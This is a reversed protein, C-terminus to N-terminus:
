FSVRLLVQIQRATESLPQLLPFANNLERRGFLAVGFQPSGYFASPNNLNAHNLLNYADARITFNLRETAARPHFTRSISADGSVLGPGTFTNRGSTGVSGPASPNAFAAANLLILGGPAPQSTYAPNPALLDARENVLTTSVGQAQSAYVTFPLGSRIAGLSSVEWNRLIGAIPARHFPTPLQWTVFFVLNHRQDFDSNGRDGGSDFQQTFASTYLPTNASSLAQNFNLFTGDLPESQNDISHSLTYSIQGSLRSRRFRLAAVLASYDSSGQNGRYDQDGFAPNLVGNPNASSPAVSYQRNVIDTTILQRSRSALADLELTLGPKLQQQLGLFASQTRPARLKPQFVLGNVLDSSPQSLGAAELASLTAPLVVPGPFTWGNTQYRNQIVNEWLNDFLPDYFIGYSARVVTKARGTLDWALGTRLAWNSSRVSMIPQNGGNQPVFSTESAIKAAIDSGPGLQILLDKQGGVNVPPGFYDYRLGYDFTLRQSFHFSDQAFFYSQRYRYSRNPSVPGSTPSLRDVEAILATPRNQAFDQLTAFELEGQPYVVTGLDTVRQLLGGGVKVTHRGASRTWSDLVEWNQGRDRYDYYYPTQDSGPLLTHHNQGGVNMSEFDILQPVGSQPTEFVVSDGTRSVRFENTTTAGLQRTFGAAIPLSKQRYGTSFEQYPNFIFKPEDLRDFAVRAYLQYRESAPSYDVRFTGDIRNFDAPPSIQVVGQDGPGSPQASPVHARLYQGAFSNPDTSEVFGATPLVFTQPDAQGTFRRTTFGGFAFLRRKIAPGGVLLGPEWEKLPARAIGNANEQFGNADLDRNKFYSFVDAHWTNTGSRTVANAVFGSTRGYESSYNTTSIRYEQIFEPATASLPGTVLQNNNQVGDLLFNASTPRQGNVSLGLGRATATDATVGPLLLLMTYADRGTLPLNQIELQSIVDSRSNELLSTSRDSANFVAIRSSDVDPGYFGLAQKSEPTLWSRYQGAEWLDYLPRMRFNLEIRGAVPLILARAQQAQYNPAEVTITYRGPSLTPVAYRGNTDTKTQFRSATEERICIVSAFPIALGTVSDAIRGIVIGQTTQGRASCAVLCLIVWTIRVRVFQVAM